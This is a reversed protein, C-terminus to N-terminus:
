SVAVVVVAVNDPAGRDLVEAVLGDAADQPPRGAVLGHLEDTGVVAAVGDTALLLVDGPELRIPGYTDVEVGPALGVVRTLTHPGTAHDTTVQTSRGGRVLHVRTDGVHAVLLGGDRVAGVTLTTGMGEQGPESAQTHVEASARLVADRLAVLVAEDDEGLASEDLDAVARAAIASAVEGAAHGGLGDAVAFLARGAHLADENTERVRGVHTATGATLEV